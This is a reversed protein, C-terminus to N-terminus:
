KNCVRGQPCHLWVVFRTPRIYHKNVSITSYNTPIYYCYIYTMFGHSICLMFETWLFRFIGGDPSSKCLLIDTIGHCTVHILNVLRAVVIVSHLLYFGLGESFYHAISYVFRRM